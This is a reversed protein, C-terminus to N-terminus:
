VYKGHFDKQYVWHGFEGVRKWESRWTFQRLPSSYPIPFSPIPVIESVAKTTNNHSLVLTSKYKRASNKM